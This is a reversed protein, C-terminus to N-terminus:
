GPLLLTHLWKVYETFYALFGAESRWWNSTDFRDPSAVVRVEVEMGRLARRVTYRARGTHYISTVLTVRGASRGQLFTRLAVAEDRTSTAGGSHPIIMIASDPVGQELLVGKMVDTGWPLLGLREAPLREVEAVLVMSAVGAHYLEAAHFPRVHPDGGLLFLFDSDLVPERVTILEAVGRLLLGRGVFLALLICGAAVIVHLSRRPIPM